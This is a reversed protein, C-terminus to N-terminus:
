GRPARKGKARAAEELRQPIGARGMRMWAVKEELYSRMTKLEAVRADLVELKEEMFRIRKAPSLTEWQGMQGKIEALTFGLLQAIRISRVLDLHGEDFVRYGNPLVHPKLLGAKEYFRVTDRSLSAAEAFAGIHLRQTAHEPTKKAPKM